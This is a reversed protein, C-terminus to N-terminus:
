GLNRLFHDITQRSLAHPPPLKPLNGAEFWRADALEHPDPVITGSKYRATFGVM